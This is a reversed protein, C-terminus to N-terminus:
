GRAHQPASVGLDHAKAPPPNRSLSWPSRSRDAPHLRLRELVTGSEWGLAWQASRDNRLKRALCPGLGRDPASCAVYQTTEWATVPPEIMCSGRQQYKAERRGPGSLYKRVIVCRRPM